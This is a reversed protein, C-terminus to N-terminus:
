RINAESRASLQDEADQLTKKAISGSIRIEPLKSRLFALLSGRSKPSVVNGICPMRVHSGDKRTITFTFGDTDDLRHFAGM